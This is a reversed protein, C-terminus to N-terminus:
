HYNFKLHFIGALFIYANYFIIQNQLKENPILNFNKIYLYMLM